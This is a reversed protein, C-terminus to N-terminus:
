ESFWKRKKGALSSQKSFKQKYDSIMKNLAKDEKIDKVQAQKMKKPKKKEKPKKAGNEAGNEVPKQPNFSEKLAKRKKPNKMLKERKKIDKRSIRPGKHRIKPGTHTPMQTQGPKSQSGSYRPKVEDNDDNEEFSAERALCAIDSFFEIVDSLTISEKM